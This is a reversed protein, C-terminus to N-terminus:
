FFTVKKGGELSIAPPEGLILTSKSNVKILQTIMDSLFAAFRRSPPVLPDPCWYYATTYLADTFLTFTLETPKARAFHKCLSVILREIQIATIFLRLPGDNKFVRLSMNSDAIYECDRLISVFMSLSLVAGFRGGDQTAWSREKVVKSSEQQKVYFFFIRALDDVFFRFVEQCEYQFFSVMAPSFTSATPITLSGFFRNVSEVLGLTNCYYHIALHVLVEVFQTATITRMDMEQRTAYLLIEVESATKNTATRVAAELQPSAVHDFMSSIAEKTLSANVIGSTEVFRWFTTESMTKSGEGAYGYFVRASMGAHTCLSQRLPGELLQTWLAADTHPAVTEKLDMLSKFNILWFHRSAWKGVHPIPVGSLRQACLFAENLGISESFETLQREYYAHESEERQALELHAECDKLLQRFSAEDVVTETASSAGQSPVPASNREEELKQVYSLTVEKWKRTIYLRYLESLALAIKDEKIKMFDSPELVYCMGAEECVERLRNLRFDRSCIAPVSITADGFVFRMIEYFADGSAFDSGFNRLPVYPDADSAKRIISNCWQLLTDTGSPGTSEVDGLLKAAGDLDFEMTEIPETVFEEVPWQAQMMSTVRERYKQVIAFADGVSQSLKRNYEKEREAM